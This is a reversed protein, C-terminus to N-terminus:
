INNEKTISYFYNNIKNLSEKFETDKKYLESNRDKFLYKKINKTLEKIEKNYISNYKIKGSKDSRIDYLM